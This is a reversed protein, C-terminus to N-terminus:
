GVGGFGDWDGRHLRQNRRVRAAVAVYEHRLEALTPVYQGPQAQEELMALNDEVTIPTSGKVHERKWCWFLFLNPELPALPPRRTM